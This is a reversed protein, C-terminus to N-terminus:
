RDCELNDVPLLLNGNLVYTTSVKVMKGGRAECSREEAEDQIVLWILLAVAGLVLLICLGLFGDELEM